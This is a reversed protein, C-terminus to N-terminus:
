PGPQHPEPPQLTARYSFPQPCLVLKCTRDRILRTFERTQTCAPPVSRHEGPVDINREKGRESFCHFIDEPSSFLFSFSNILVIFPEPPFYFKLLFPLKYFSSPDLWPVHTFSEHVFAVHHSSSQFHITPTPLAPSLLPPFISVVTM